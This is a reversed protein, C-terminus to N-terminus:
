LLARGRLYHMIDSQSPQLHGGSLSHGHLYQSVRLRPSLGTASILLFSLLLRLRLARLGGPILLLRRQLYLQGFLVVPTPLHRQQSLSQPPRELVVAEGLM